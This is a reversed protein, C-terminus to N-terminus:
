GCLGCRVAPDHAQLAWVIRANKNALAVAAVNKYRRSVVSSIWNCTDARQGVRYVGRETRTTPSHSTREVAPPPTWGNSVIRDSRSFLFGTRQELYHQRM